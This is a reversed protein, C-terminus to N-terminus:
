KSPASLYLKQDRNKSSWEGKRMGGLLFSPLSFSFSTAFDHDFTM